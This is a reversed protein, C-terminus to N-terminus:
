LRGLYQEMEARLRAYSRNWDAENRAMTERRRQRWRGYYVAAGVLLVAGTIGVLVAVPLSYLAFTPADWLLLDVGVYVMAFVAWWGMPDVSMSAKRATDLWRPVEAQSTLLLELSSRNRRTTGRPNSELQLAKHLRDAWERLRVVRGRRRRRILWGGPLSVSLTVAFAWGASAALRRYVDANAFFPNLGPPYSLGLFLLFWVIIAALILLAQSNQYTEREAAYAEAALRHTESLADVLMAQPDESPPPPPLRGDPPLLSASADQGWDRVWRYIRPLRVFVLWGAITADARYVVRSSGGVPEVRLKVLAERGIAVTLEERDVRVVHGAMRLRRVLYATAEPPAAHITGLPFRWVWPAVALAVIVLIAAYAVVTLPDVPVLFVPVLLLIVGVM